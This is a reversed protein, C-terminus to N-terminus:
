WRRPPDDAARDPLTLRLAGKTMRWSRAVILTRPMKTVVAKTALVTIRSASYLVWSINKEVGTRFAANRKPRKKPAMVAAKRKKPRTARDIRRPLQIGQSSGSRTPGKM